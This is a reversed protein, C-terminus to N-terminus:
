CCCIGDPELPPPAPPPPPLGPGHFGQQRCGLQDGTKTIREGQMEGVQQREGMEGHTEAVRAREGFVRANNLCYNKFIKDSGAAGHWCFQQDRDSRSAAAPGVGPPM